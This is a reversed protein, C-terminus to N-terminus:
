ADELWGFWDGTIIAAKDVTVEMAVISGEPYPGAPIPFTYANSGDQLGISGFPQFILDSTLDHGEFYTSSIKIQAGAAATGSVSGGVAGKVFLKKGKPVMRASSACRRGGTEIQAYVIASNSASIVGAASKLSGASLTHLCQIFRIDTAVTLVPTIGNLTIIEEQPNLNADLYHLHLTRLGTGGVGDSASTSSISMQVGAPAPINFTGDPWIIHNTIPGAAAYRGYSAFPAAGAVNGRAIETYFDNVNVGETVQKNKKNLVWWM